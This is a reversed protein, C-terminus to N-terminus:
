KFVNIITRTIITSLAATTGGKGGIGAYIEGTSLIVIGVIVGGISAILINPIIEISSMGVFSSTFSIGALDKPLFYVAIMGVIGNAIIPGLNLKHNLTWTIIVSLFCCILVYHYNKRLPKEKYIRVLDRFHETLSIIFFVILIIIITIKMMNNENIITSIFLGLGTIVFAILGLIIRWVGAQTKM